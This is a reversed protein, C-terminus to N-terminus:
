EVCARELWPSRRGGPQGGSADPRGAGRGRPADEVAEAAREDQGKDQRVSAELKYFVESISKSKNNLIAEFRAQPCHPFIVYTILILFILYGPYFGKM